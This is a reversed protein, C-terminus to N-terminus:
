EEEKEAELARRLARAGRIQVLFGLSMVLVPLYRPMWAPEAFILVLMLALGVFFLALGTLAQALPRM